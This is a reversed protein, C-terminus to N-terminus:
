RDGRANAEESRDVMRATVAGLLESALRPGDSPRAPTASIRVVLADGDVEELTVRPAGRMPTSIEAVLTKEVDEPTVSPRLRARLEVATPETLPVVAVALVVANPVMIPGDRSAFTTYLLGLSSV